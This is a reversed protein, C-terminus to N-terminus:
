TVVSSTGLCALPFSDQDSLDLWDDDVDAVIDFMVLITGANEAFGRLEISNTEGPDLIRKGHRPFVYLESVRDGPTLLPLDDSPGARCDLPPSPVILTITNNLSRVHWRVDILRIGVHDAGAGGANPDNTAVLSIAVEEGPNAQTGTVPSVEGSREVYQQTYDAVTDRLEVSGITTTM